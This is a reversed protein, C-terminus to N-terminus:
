RVLVNISVGEDCVSLIISDLECLRRFADDQEEFSISDDKLLKVIEDDFCDHVFLLKDSEISDLPYNNFVQSFSNLFAGKIMKVGRVVDSEVGFGLYMIGLNFYSIKYGMEIAKELMLVVTQIESDLLKVSNLLVMSLQHYGKHNNQMILEIAEKCDDNNELGYKKILPEIDRGYDLQQKKSASVSEKKNTM